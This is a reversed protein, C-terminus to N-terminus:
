LPRVNAVEVWGERDGSLRVRLFGDREALVEMGLGADVSFLALSGPLPESRIETPEIVVAQKRTLWRYHTQGMGLSFLSWMLSFLSVGLWVQNPIRSFPRLYILLLCVSVLGLGLLSYYGWRDPSLRSALSIAAMGSPFEGGAFQLNHRIDSDSPNMQLAKRYHWVAEGTKGMRFFANGLNYHVADNKPSITEWQSIAEQFKGQSYAEIGANFSSNVEAHLLLASVTWLLVVLRMM